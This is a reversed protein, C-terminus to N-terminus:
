WGKWTEKTPGRGEQDLSWALKREGAMGGGVRVEMWREGTKNGEKHPSNQGALLVASVSLHLAKSRLLPSCISISVFCNRGKRPPFLWPSELPGRVSYRWWLCGRKYGGLYARAGRRPAAIHLSLSCSGEGVM